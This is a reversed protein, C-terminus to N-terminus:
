EHEAHKVIVYDKWYDLAKSYNEIIEYLYALIVKKLNADASSDSEVQEILKRVKDKINSCFIRDAGGLFESLERYQKLDLYCKILAYDIHELWVSAKM